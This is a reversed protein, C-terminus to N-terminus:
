ISKGAHSRSAKVANLFDTINAFDARNLKPKVTEVSYSREDADVFSYGFYNQKRHIAQRLEELLSFEQAYNLPLNTELHEKFESIDKEPYSLMHDGDIAKHLLEIWYTKISVQKLSVPHLINFEPLTCCRLMWNTIVQKRKKDLPSAFARQVRSLMARIEHQQRAIMASIRYQELEDEWIGVLESIDQSDKSILYGPLDINEKQFAGSYALKALRDMQANEIFALEETLILPSHFSVHETDLLLRTFLLHTEEKSLESQQWLSLIAPIKKLGLSYFPHAQGTNAQMFEASWTLGSIPCNCKM